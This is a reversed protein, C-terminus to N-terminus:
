LEMREGIGQKRAADLVVSAAVADQVAVGVSKYLTIQEASSRGPRAGSILEGVEAHIHAETILGERIPIALDNAGAPFPALASQRSEVVVLSRAIAVSDLERGVPNLGVSNVHTGPEIDAGAVVPEPSHTTACVISAGRAAERFSAVAHAAIGLKAGLEAALQNAKRSDRGVIRVERIRRVRPIALGHMRAQVGTGVIVLVDAEARALLRTALASGAATRAATLYAGDLLAECAGTAADFVAVIAQHTPLPGGANKPFVSVLKVALTQSSPLYAPMVGLLGEREPVMAAVRPPMSVRGASLEAMAPALAEILIDLDLLEEVHTRQLVLMDTPSVGGPVASRGRPTIGGCCRRRLALPPGM